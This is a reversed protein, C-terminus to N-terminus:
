CPQLSTGELGLGEGAAVAVAVPRCTIDAAFKLPMRRYLQLMLMTQWECSQAVLSAPQHVVAIVPGAGRPPVRHSGYVAPQSEQFAHPSCAEFRPLLM